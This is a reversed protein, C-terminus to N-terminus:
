LHVVLYSTLPIRYTSLGSVLCHSVPLWPQKPILCPPNVMVATTEYNFEEGWFRLLAM